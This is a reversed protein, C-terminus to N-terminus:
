IKYKHEIGWFMYKSIEKRELLQSRCVPCKSGYEEKFKSACDLHGVRASCKCQYIIYNKLDFPKACWRCNPRKKFTKEQQHLLCLPSTSHEFKDFCGSGFKIPGDLSNIYVLRAKCLTQQHVDTANCNEMATYCDKLGPDLLVSTSVAVHRRMNNVLSVLVDDSCPKNQEALWRRVSAMTISELAGKGAKEVDHPHTEETVHLIDYISM